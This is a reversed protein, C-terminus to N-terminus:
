NESLIIKLGLYLLLAAYVISAVALPAAFKDTCHIYLDWALLVLTVIIAGWLGLLSTVLLIAFM